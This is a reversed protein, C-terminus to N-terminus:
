KLNLKRSPFPLLHILQQTATQLRYPRHQSGQGHPLHISPLRRRRHSCAQPQRGFSDPLDALPILLASQLARQVVCGPGSSSRGQIRLLPLANNGHRAALRRCSPRTPSHAQQGFLRDFALQHRANPSLGDPHQQFAVVQLRPPFFIHHTASNSSSYM